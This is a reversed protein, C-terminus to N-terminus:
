FNRTPFHPPSHPNTPLGFRNTTAQSIPPSTRQIETRLCGPRNGRERNSKEAHLLLDSRNQPGHRHYSRSWRLPGSHASLFSGTCDQGSGPNGGGHSLGASSSQRKTQNQQIFSAARIKQYRPM